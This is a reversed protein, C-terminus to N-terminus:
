VRHLLSFVAMTVLDLSVVMCQQGVEHGKLSLRVKVREGGAHSPREGELHWLLVENFVTGSAVALSQEGDGLGLFRASYRHWSTLAVGDGDDHSQTPKIRKVAITLEVFYTCMRYVLPELDRNYM